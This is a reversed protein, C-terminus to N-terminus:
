FITKFGSSNRPRLKLAEPTKEVEKLFWLRIEVAVLSDVGQEVLAVSDNVVEEEAIQLVRKLKSVFAESTVQQDEKIIFHSFKMDRRRIEKVQLDVPIYNVRCGSRMSTFYPNITISSIHTPVHLSWNYANGPFAWAAFASKLATDLMGPHVLVNDQWESDPQDTLLGTAYNQKRRILPLGQFPHSYDYGVRRLSAYFNNTSM